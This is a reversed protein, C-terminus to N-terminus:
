YSYSVMVMLGVTETRGIVDASLLQSHTLRESYRPSLTSGVFAICPMGFMLTKSIWRTLFRLHPIELRSFVSVGRVRYLAPGCEGIFRCMVPLMLSMLMRCGLHTSVCEILTIAVGSWPLVHMACTLYAQFCSTAMWSERVARSRSLYSMGLAPTPRLYFSTQRYFILMMVVRKLIFGCGSLEHLKM